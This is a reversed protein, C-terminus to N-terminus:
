AQGVPGEVFRGVAELRYSPRGGLFATHDPYQDVKRTGFNPGTGETLLGDGQGLTRRHFQANTTLDARGADQLHVVFTQQSVYLHAVTQGDPVTPGDHLDDIGAWVVQRGPHGVTSLQASARTEVDRGVM